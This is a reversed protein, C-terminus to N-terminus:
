KLVETAGQKGNRSETMMAGSFGAHVVWHIADM